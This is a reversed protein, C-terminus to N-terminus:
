IMTNVLIWARHNSVRAYVAPSDQGCPLGWSVIGILQNNSDVLPSGSDGLCTGQNESGSTCIINDPLWETYSEDFAARCEDQHMVEVEIFRLPDPTTNDSITFRGFGSVTAETDPEVIEQRITIPQVSENFSFRDNVNLVAIDNAHIDVRFHPHTVIRRVRSTSGGTSLRNSGVFVILDQNTLGIVCSAATAIWERNLIAGGCFYIGLPTLLAAQYPFQNVTAEQGGAIRTEKEAIPLAVVSYALISAICTVLIFGTM